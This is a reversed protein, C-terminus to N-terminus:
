IIDVAPTGILKGDPRIPAGIAAFMPACDDRVDV